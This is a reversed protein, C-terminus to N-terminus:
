ESFSVVTAVWDIDCLSYVLLGFFSDVCSGNHIVEEGGYICAVM